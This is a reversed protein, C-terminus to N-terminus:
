ISKSMISVGSQAENVNISDTDCNQVYLKDYSQNKKNLDYDKNTVNPDIYDVELGIEICARAYNLGVSGLGIILFKNKKM